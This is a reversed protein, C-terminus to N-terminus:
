VPDLSPVVAVAIESSSSTERFLGTDPYVVKVHASPVGAHTADTITGTLAARDAQAFCCSLGFIWIVFLKKSM